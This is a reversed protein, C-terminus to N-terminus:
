APRFWRTTNCAGITTTRKSSFSISNGDFPACRNRRVLGTSARRPRRWLPRTTRRTPGCVGSSASPVKSAPIRGCRPSMPPGAFMVFMRATDAGYTAILDQPDVGNMESKSMKSVGGYEVPGGDRLLKGGSIRGDTDFQVEVEAPPFYDVGGTNSRRFYNHNLLMGQTM